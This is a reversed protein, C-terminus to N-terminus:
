PRVTAGPACGPCPVGTVFDRSAATILARAEDQTIGPQGDGPQPGYDGFFAHVGGEIVTFEAGPPLDAVSAEIDAPTALGDESGSVSLVSTRLTQSVDSAPYSAHLLLGAVPASASADGVAISSAVTGGLSHGGVVWAAVEPHDARAADLAGTALFAIGLPQKPIVVTVGEEALPRLMAAYARADVRAGPQYLLGRGTPADTPRLVIATASEEVAVSADSAMAALAPEVAGFPRLWGIVALWGAGLVLVVVVGAITRGPLPTRLRGSWWLLIAAGLATLVLLVVYAPHGHVVAGWATALVWAVVLLAAAALVRLLIRM